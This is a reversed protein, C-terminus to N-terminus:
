KRLLQSYLWMTRVIIPVALATFGAAGAVRSADGLSYAIWHLLGVYSGVTLSLFSAGVTETLEFKKNRSVSGVVAIMAGLVLGIAWIYAYGDPSTDEFSPPSAYLAAIGFYILAGYGATLGVQFSIIPSWAWLGFLNWQLTRWFGPKHIVGTRPQITKFEDDFGM